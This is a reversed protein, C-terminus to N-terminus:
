GEAWKVYLIEAGYRPDRSRMAEGNTAWRSAGSKFWDKENVSPLPIWARTQGEPKAIELKTTIDFDRWVGPRPAFTDHAFAPLPLSAALAFATGTKLFDRRDHHM